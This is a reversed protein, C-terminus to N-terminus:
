PKWAHRMLPIGRRRNGDNIPPRRWCGHDRVIVTVRCQGLPTAEIGWPNGGDRTTPGFLCARNRQCPRTSPWCSTRLQEAHSSWEALWRRVSARAVSISIPEALLTVYLLRQSERSRRRYGSREGRSAQGPSSTPPLIEEPHATPPMAPTMTERVRIQQLTTDGVGHYGSRAERM